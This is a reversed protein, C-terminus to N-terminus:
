GQPGSTFRQPHAVPEDDAVDYHAAAVHDKLRTSAEARIFDEGQDTGPAHALHIPRAVRAQLAADGHLDERRLQRIVWFEARPEGVLGLRNRGEVVRVDAAQVIDAALVLGLIQHKFQELALGQRCTQFSAYQREGLDEAEAHFDSICELGCMSPADDMAIQLRPVHHRRRRAGLQEVETERLV